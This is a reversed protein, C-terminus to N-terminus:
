AKDRVKFFLKKKGENAAQQLITRSIAEYHVVRDRVRSTYILEHIEEDFEFPSQSPDSLKVKFKVLSFDSSLLRYFDVKAKWEATLYEVIIDEWPEEKNHEPKFIQNIVILSM